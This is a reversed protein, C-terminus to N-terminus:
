GGIVKLERKVFPGFEINRYARDEAHKDLTVFIWRGDVRCVHGKDGTAIEQIPTGPTM